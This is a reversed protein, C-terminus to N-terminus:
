NIGATSVATNATTSIAPDIYSYFTLSEETVGDANLTVGYDQFCCNLISMVEVGSKLQLHVRYGYNGNSPMYTHNDLGTLNATIGTSGSVSTVSDEDLKGSTSTTFTSVGGRAREFLFQYNADSKKRTITITVGKKIEAKLVTRQGYYSVDEDVSEISVDLGTVDTLINKDTGTLVIGTDDTNTSVLKLTTTTPQTITFNQGQAEIATQLNDVAASTAGARSFNLGSTSSAHATYTKATGDGDTITVTDGTAPSNSFTITVTAAGDPTTISGISMYDTSVADFTVAVQSGDEDNPWERNKILTTSGVLSGVIGAVSVANSAVKVGLAKHETTIAVAVDRGM